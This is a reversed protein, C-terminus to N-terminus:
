KQVGKRGPSRLSDVAERLLALDDTRFLSRGAAAREFDDPRWLSTWSIPISILSPGGPSEALYRVIARKSGDTRDYIRVGQGRLPHFPHTIVVEQLDDM